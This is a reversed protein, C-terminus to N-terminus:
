IMGPTHALSEVERMVSDISCNTRVIADAFTSKVVTPLQSAVLRKAEGEDGLRATLRRLQEEPGCTVVWVRKFLGALCAEVLLPVEVVDARTAALRSLVEPHLAANLRRRAGADALVLSRVHDRDLPVPLELADAIRRRGGEDQWVDKVIEDASATRFGLAELAGLVTSKGEGPGGTVALRFLAPAAGTNM